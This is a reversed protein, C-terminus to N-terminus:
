PIMQTLSSHLYDVILSVRRRHGSISRALIGTASWLRGLIRADHPQTQRKRGQGKSIRRGQEQRQAGTTCPLTSTCLGEGLRSVGYVSWTWVTLMFYGELAEREYPVHWLAAVLTHLQETGATSLLLMDTAIM